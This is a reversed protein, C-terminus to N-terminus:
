GATRSGHLGQHGHKPKTWIKTRIVGEEAVVSIRNKIIKITKGQMQPILQYAKEALSFIINFGARLFPSLLPSFEEYTRMINFM